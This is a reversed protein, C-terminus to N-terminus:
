TTAPRGHLEPKYLTVRNRGGQKSHYLARDAAAYLYESDPMESLLETVGFSCTVAVQFGSYEFPEGAIRERLKEALTMGQRAETEPCLVVFEEGGVRAFVQEARVVEAVRQCLQKLVFDGCLHGYTDNIAKFHDIDFLLLTLSRGYRIARATERAVEEAFKRQNYIETLGDRSVLNYIALHYASEVDREHLFKFHVSGVHFRDGSALVTEGRIQRDNVFTGNTSGLDELVVHVGRHELRAHNRSVALVEPLSIEAAPARGIEIVSGPRLRFRTGLMRHEPHAILIVNAELEATTEGSRLVQSTTPEYVQTGSSERLASIEISDTSSDSVTRRKRAGGPNEREMGQEVEVV